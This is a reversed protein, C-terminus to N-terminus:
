LGSLWPTLLAVTRPLVDAQNAAFEQARRGVTVVAAPERLLRAAAGALAQEDAIPVLGGAAILGDCLTQFNHRYPGKLTACQLRAPELPNHGGQPVLSGGLFVVPALRYFLGLEGLTDAIYIDADPGDGRSRLAVRRGSEALRAAIAPGRQPHRPAIVTLLQPFEGLLRTHVRAAIDEEGEHTSAALWRPRGAWAAELSRHAALSDPLPPAAVKLNGPMEVGAAGLARLRAADEDSQALVARFSNLVEAALPRVRRWRRFSRESMRANILVSPVDRRRLERLMNPWLESEVWLALDPRWHDLFRRVAPPVDVPAFQHLAPPALREAMLAASTPTGTTVLPVVHPYRQQIATILPLLSLSEGVSAAHMWVVPALPRQLAAIGMREALRAANEKGAAARRSLHLRVLPTAARSLVSYMSLGFQGLVSSVTDPVGSASRAPSSM